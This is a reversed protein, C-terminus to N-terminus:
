CPEATDIPDDMEIGRDSQRTKGLPTSYDLAILTTPWKIHNAEVAIAVCAIAFRDIVNISSFPACRRGACYDGILPVIGAIEQKPHQQFIMFKIAVRKNSGSFKKV